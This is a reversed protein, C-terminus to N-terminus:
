LVDAFAPKARMFVAYGIIATLLSVLYIAALKGSDPWIGYLMAGRAQEIMVALPNLHFIIALRPPVSSLPFFVLSTFMLVMTLPGTVSSIDRVFVCAASLFWALGLCLLVLPIIFLPLIVASLPLSGHAYFAIALCLSLSILLNFLNNIVFVAPLIEVPFQLTKVYAGSALLISTAGNITQGVMNFLSLGVFLAVAYDLPSEALSTNFRGKFIGGFVFVFLTLMILPSLVSWGMGLYTERHTAAFDRRTFAVVLQRHKWLTCVFAVPSLLERLPIKSVPTYVAKNM